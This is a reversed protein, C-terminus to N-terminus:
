ETNTRNSVESEKGILRVFSQSLNEYLRAVVNKGKIEKELADIQKHLDKYLASEDDTYGLLEAIHLQERAAQVFDLAAQKDDRLESAQRILSQARILGLPVVTTESVTSALATNLITIAEFRKDNILYRTALKVSDPWTAMPLYVTNISMEDRLGSLLERAAQVKGDDLLEEVRGLRKRIVEASAALNYVTVYADVPILALTPDAALAVDFKGTAAQLASIAEKDKGMDLLKIAHIVRKIGEAVDTNIKKLLEKQRSTENRIAETTAKNSALDGAATATAALPALLLAALTLNCLIKKM